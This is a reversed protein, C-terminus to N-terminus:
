GLRKDAFFTWIEESADVDKSVGGLINGGLTTGPWTHGGDALVYLEVVGGPKCGTWRRVSAQGKVVEEVPDPACGNHRAWNAMTAPAGAITPNGCCSVRGGDFPVVTDQKGHFAIIPLTRAAACPPGWVVAAVSAFAAIRDSLRCALVATMAGGNSMGTSYIRAADVCLTTTIHDLLDAVFVVDDQESGSPGLLTFHRPQGQGQPAVVLFGERESQPGFNGYLLQQQASSGFGHFELVVPVKKTGTYTKPAYVLYERDFGHSELKHTSTGPRVAARGACESAAGESTTRTPAAPEDKSCAALTALLVVLAVGMSKKAIRHTM